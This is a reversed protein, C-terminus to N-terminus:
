ESASSPIVLLQASSVRQVCTVILSSRLPVAFSLLRVRIGGFRLLKSFLGPLFIGSLLFSSSSTDELGSTTSYGCGSFVCHTWTSSLLQRLHSMGAIHGHLCGLFVTSSFLPPNFFSSPSPQRTLVSCFRSSQHTPRRLTPPIAFQNHLLYVGCVRSM